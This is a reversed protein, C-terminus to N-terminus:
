MIFVSFAILISYFYKITLTAIDLSWALSQGAHAGM